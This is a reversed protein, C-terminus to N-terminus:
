VCPARWSPAQSACGEMVSSLLRLINGCCTPRLVVSAIHHNQFPCAPLMHPGLAWASQVAVAQGEGGGLHAILIPAAPLLAAVTAHDGAALNTAVWAAEEVVAASIGSASRVNKCGNIHFSPLVLMRKTNL